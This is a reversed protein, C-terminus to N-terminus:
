TAKAGKRKMTTMVLEPFDIPDEQKPEQKKGLMEDDSLKYGDDSDSNATFELEDIVVFYM